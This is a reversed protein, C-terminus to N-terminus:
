DSNKNKTTTSWFCCRARVRAMWHSFKRFDLKLIRGDDDCFVGVKDDSTSWQCVDRSTLFNAVSDTNSSSDDNDSDQFDEHLIQLSRESSRRRSSWHDGLTAFYFVAMIYRQQIDLTRDATTLQFPDEDLMWDLAKRAPSKPTAIAAAGSWEVALTTFHRKRQEYHEEETSPPGQHNNTQPIDGYYNSNHNNPVDWTNGPPVEPGHYPDGIHGLAPNGFTPPPHSQDYGLAPNGFTPPPHGRETTSQQHGVGILIGTLFAATLGLGILIMWRRDAFNTSGRSSRIRSNSELPEGDDKVLRVSECVDIKNNKNDSATVAETTDDAISVDVIGEVDYGIIEDSFRDAVDAVDGDNDYSGVEEIKKRVNEAM